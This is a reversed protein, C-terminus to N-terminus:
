SAGPESKGQVERLFAEESASLAVLAELLDAQPLPLLGRAAAMRAAQPARGSIIAQVVPNTSTINASM